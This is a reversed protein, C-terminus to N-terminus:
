SKGLLCLYTNHEFCSLNCIYQTRSDYGQGVTQRCCSCIFKGNERELYIITTNGVIDIKSVSVQPLNLWQTIINNSM